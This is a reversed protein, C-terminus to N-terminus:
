PRKRPLDVNLLMVEGREVVITRTQRGYGQATIEVRYSGPELETHSGSAIDTKRARKKRLPTLKLQASAVDEGSDADRVFVRLVGRDTLELLDVRLAASQGVTVTATAQGPAFGPCEVQVPYDGPALEAFRAAGSAGTREKRGSALGVEVDPLAEGRADFVSVVLEGTSPTPPEPAVPKPEPPPAAAESAPKKPSSAFHYRLGVFSTVRPEFPVYQQASTWEPRRSVLLSTVWVLELQENPGVARSLKFSTRWPSQRLAPSGQGLLADGSFEGAVGFKGLRGVAAFRLLLAHYSSVGLSLWDSRSLHVDPSVSNASFDLRPGLASVLSWARALKVDAIALLDLTSSRVDLAPVNAGGILWGAEMGLRTRSGLGAGYRLYARPEGVMSDDRPSVAHLDWRGDVRLEASLGFRTAYAVGLSGAVRHHVGTTGAVHETIGYGSSGSVILGPSTTLRPTLWVADLTRLQPQAVVQGVFALSSSLLM